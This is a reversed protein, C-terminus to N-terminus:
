HGLATALSFVPDHSCDKLYRSDQCLQTLLAFPTLGPCERLPSPDTKEQTM